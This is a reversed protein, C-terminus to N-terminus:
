GFSVFRPKTRTPALYVVARRGDTFYPDGTLNRRPQDVTCPGVGDVYAIAEVREGDLLDAVVYERAEDVDPDIRHTTLNWAKTTFRVGIDRSVQGVWVPTKEFRLPTLWLRLHVRENISRRIRQLALDQSRGLLCLPSVPSYRYESGLLFARVTKLCSGPTIVETESWHEAFAALVSDLEAIVILNVPDGHGTGRSNTTATPMARLREVLQPIDCEVLSEAARAAALDRQQYDATIGGISVAFTFETAPHDERPAEDGPQKHMSGGAALLRVKLERTGAEYEAFVFGETTEGPAIPHLRFARSRFQDDMRRNARWATILKSPILLLIPAAMWAALGLTSLRKLVSFHCAAAAELPTYYSRDMAVLQLWLPHASRNTIRLAVPQIGRRSVPVGFLRAAEQPDPAAVTVRASDDEQTIARELFGRDSFDPQYRTTFLSRLLDLTRSM